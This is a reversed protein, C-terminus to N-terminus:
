HAKRRVPVAHGMRANQELGDLSHSPDREVTRLDEVAEVGPHRKPELFDEGFGRPLIRNAGHIQGAGPPCEGAPLFQGLRRRLVALRQLIERRVDARRVVREHEREAPHGLRHHAADVAPGGAGAGVERQGAVDHDRRLLGREELREDLDAQHRVGPAGPEKRAQDAGRLRRREGQRALLPGRGPRGLEPEDVLHTREGLELRAREAHRLVEGGLGGAREGEDLLQEGRRRVIRELLLELHFRFALAERPPAGVIALSHLREQLLPLGREGAPSTVARPVSAVTPTSPAPAIPLPMAWTAAPAPWWTMTVSWRASASSCARPRRSATIPRSTSRPRRARSAACASSSRIVQAGPAAPSYATKRWQASMMSATTSSRATLRSANRRSSASTESVQMRAVLVEESETVAIAPAHRTGSRTTPRWKKLGAGSRGSTSITGPSVVDASVVAVARSVAAAQPLVVTWALSVGPKM